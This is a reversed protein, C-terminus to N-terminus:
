FREFVHTIRFIVDYRKGGLKQPNGAIGDAFM